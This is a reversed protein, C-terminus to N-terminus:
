LGAPGYVKCGSLTAQCLPSPHAAEVGRAERLTAQRLPHSLPRPASRRRSPRYHSPYTAQCGRVGGAVVVLCVGYGPHVKSRRLVGGGLLGEGESPWGKSFRSPGESPSPGLPGAVVYMRMNVGALVGKTQVQEGIRRFWLLKLPFVKTKM